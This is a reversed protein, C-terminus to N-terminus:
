KYNGEGIAEGCSTAVSILRLLRRGQDLLKEQSTVRFSGVKIIEERGPPLPPELFPYETRIGTGQLMWSGPPPLASSKRTSRLMVKGAIVEGHSDIKEEYVTATPSSSAM